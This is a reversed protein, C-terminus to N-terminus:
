ECLYINVRTNVECVERKKGGLPLSSSFSFLLRDNKTLGWLHATRRLAACCPRGVCPLCGYKVRASTSSWRPTVPQPWATCATKWEEWCRQRAPGWSTGAARGALSLALGWVRPEASVRQAVSCPQLCGTGSVEGRLGPLLLRSPHPCLEDAAAPLPWAESTLWARAPADALRPCRPSGESGVANRSRHRRRRSASGASRGGRLIRAASWMCSLTECGGWVFNHCGPMAGAGKGITSCRLSSVARKLITINAIFLWCCDM